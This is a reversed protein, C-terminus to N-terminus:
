QPEEEDLDKTLESIQDLGRQVKLLNLGVNARFNEPDADLAKQYATEATEYDKIDRLVDGCAALAPAYNMGGEALVAKQYCISAKDIDKAAYYYADGWAVLAKILGIASAAHGACEQLDDFRGLFAYCKMLNAYPEALWPNYQIAKQFYPLAEGYNESDYYLNGINNYATAEEPDISIAKAYCEAAKRIDGNEHHKYSLGLNVYADAYDPNLRIAEELSRIAKGYEGQDYYLTGLNYHATANDPKLSIAKQMYQIALPTDGLEYVSNGLELYALAYDPYIGIANRYAEAARQYNKRATLQNGQEFYHLAEMKKENVKVQQRIDRREPEPATTYSEKLQELERSAQDSDAQLDRNRQAADSLAKRDALMERTISDSDAQAVILCRYNISGDPLVESLMEENKVHLVGASIAQIEDKKLKSAQIDSLSEIWICAQEGAMRLANRRAQEQAAQVSEGLEENLVYSGEAEITRLEAQAPATGMCFFAAAAALATITKKM